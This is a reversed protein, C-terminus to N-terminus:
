RITSQYRLTIARKAILPTDKTAEMLIKLWEKTSKDVPLLAKKANSVSLQIQKRVEALEKAQQTYEKFQFEYIHQASLFDKRETQSLESFRTAGAHYETFLPMEPKSLTSKELGEPDIIEWIEALIGSRLDHYWNEWDDPDTLITTNISQSAITARLLSLPLETYHSSPNKSSIFM